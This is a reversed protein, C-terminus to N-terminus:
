FLCMSNKLLRAKPDRCQYDHPKRHFILTDNYILPTGLNDNEWLTEGTAIDLCSTTTKFLQSTRILFDKHVAIDSYSGSLIESTRTQLNYITVKSKSAIILFKRSETIEAEGHESITITQISFTELDYIQVDTNQILILTNDYISYSISDGQVLVSFFTKKTQQTLIIRQVIVQFNIGLLM